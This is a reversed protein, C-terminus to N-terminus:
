EYDEKLKNVRSNLVDTLNNHQKEKSEIIGTKEKMQKELKQIKVEKSKLEKELQILFKNNEKNIRKIEGEM